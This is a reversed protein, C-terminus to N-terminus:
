SIVLFQLTYNSYIAIDLTIIYNYSALSTVNNYTLLLFLSQCVAVYIYCHVMLESENDELQNNM